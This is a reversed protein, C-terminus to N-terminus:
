KELITLSSPVMPVGEWDRKVVPNTDQEIRLRSNMKPRRLVQWRKFNLVRGTHSIKEYENEM